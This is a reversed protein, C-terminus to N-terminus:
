EDILKSVESIEPNKTLIGDKILAVIKFRNNQLATKLINDPYIVWKELVLNMKWPIFDYALYVLETCNVRDSSEFDFYFDYKKDKQNAINQVISKEEEVTLDVPRIIVTVDNTLCEKLNGMHVGSTIAEALYKDRVTIKRDERQNERRPIKGQRNLKKPGLWVAAHSFYGPIVQNPLYEPSKTVIIDFPQLEEILQRALLRSQKRNVPEADHHRFVLSGFFQYSNYAVFKTIGGVPIMAYYASKFYNPHPLLQDISDFMPWNTWKNNFIKHRNAPSYLLKLNRSLVSSPIRRGKDGREFSRGLSSRIYTKEYNAASVLLQAACFQHIFKLSDNTKKTQCWIDEFKQDIEIQNGFTLYARNINLASAKGTQQKENEIQRIVQKAQNVLSDRKKIIDDIQTIYTSSLSDIGSYAKCRCGQRIGVCSVMSIAM